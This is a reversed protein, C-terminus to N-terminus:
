ISINMEIKLAAPIQQLVNLAAYAALLANYSSLSIEEPKLPIASGHTEPNFEYDITKVIKSKSHFYYKEGEINFCYAYFNTKIEVQYDKADQWEGTIERM